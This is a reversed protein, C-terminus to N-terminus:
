GPETTRRPKRSATVPSPSCLVEVLGPLSECEIEKLIKLHLPTFSM